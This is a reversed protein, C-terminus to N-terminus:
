KTHVNMTAGPYTLETKVRKVHIDTQIYINTHVCVHINRHYCTGMHSKSLRQHKQDRGM